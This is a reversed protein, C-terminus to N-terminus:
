EYQIYDLAYQLVYDNEEVFINQIAKDDLPIRVDVPIKSRRDMGPDVLIDNNEDLILLGSYSMYAIDSDAVDVAMAAGCSDTLGMLTVNKQHQMFYIFIEAASVTNHNVLIVINGNGWKNDAPCRFEEYVEYETKGYEFIGEKFCVEENLFCSAVAMSVQAYGGGNGRMDIILNEAGQEKIKEVVYLMQAHLAEYSGDEKAVGESEEHGISEDILMDTLSLYATDENLMEYTLNENQNDHKLLEYTKDFRSLYNGQEELRVTHIKKKEDLYCLEITGQLGSMVALGKYFKENEAVPFACFWTEVEQSLADISNGNISVVEMGDRIGIEYAPMEEDVNVMVYSGDSKQLISFGYDKGSFEERYRQGYEQENKTVGVGVHGDYFELGFQKWLVYMQYSDQKEQAKEFQSYYKEYLGDWDTDRYEGLVYSHKLKDFIGNFSEVFKYNINENTYGFPIWIIFFCIALAQSVRYIMKEKKWRKM